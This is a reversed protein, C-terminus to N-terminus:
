PSAFVFLVLAQNVRLTTNYYSSSVLCSSSRLISVGMLIFEMENVAACYYMKIEASSILGVYYETKISADCPTYSISYM